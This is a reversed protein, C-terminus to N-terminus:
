TEIMEKSRAVRSLKKEEFTPHHRNPPPPPTIPLEKIRLKEKDILSRFLKKTIKWHLLKRYSLFSSTQGRGQITQVVGQM